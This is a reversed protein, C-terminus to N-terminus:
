QLETVRGCRPCTSFPLNIPEQWTNQCESCMRWTGDINQAPIAEPSPIESTLYVKYGLWEDRVRYFLRECSIVLADHDFAMRITTKEVPSSIKEVKGSAEWYEEPHNLQFQHVNILVLEIAYPPWQSQILVQLDYQPRMGMAHDPFVCGRNIGHIEKAMSDHFNNISALLQDLDKQTAVEQYIQM